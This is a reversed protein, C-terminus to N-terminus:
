FLMKSSDDSTDLVQTFKLGKQSEFLLLEIVVTERHLLLDLIVLSLLLLEFPLELHLLLHNQVELLYDNLPVPVLLTAFFVDLELLSQCLKLFFVLLLLDVDFVKFMLEILGGRVLLCVVVHLFFNNLDFSLIM